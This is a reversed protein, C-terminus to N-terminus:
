NRYFDIWRIELSKPDQSTMKDPLTVEFGAAQAPDDSTKSKATLSGVKLWYPSKKDVAIEEGNELLNIIQRHKGYSQVSVRLTQKGNGITLSELGSLHLRLKIAQPWGASPREVTLRGIGDRDAIRVLLVEDKLDVSIDSEQDGAFVREDTEAFGSICCM